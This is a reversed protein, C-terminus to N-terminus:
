GISYQTGESVENTLGGCNVRRQGEARGLEGWFPGNVEAGEPAKRALLLFTKLGRAFM